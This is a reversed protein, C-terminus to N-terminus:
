KIELLEIDFVLTSKPPITPPRGREGYALEPPIVLLRRGGVKMMPVGEKWGGISRPLPLPLPQGGERTTYFESGDLLWGTCHVLATDTPAPSAGEGAKLVVYMLGSETAELKNGSKDVRTQLLEQFERAREAEHQEQEVKALAEVKAVEAAAEDIAAFVPEYEWGDLLTVSNIVITEKPTVPQPSPYKPHKIVETDKIKDVVDMGEVVEGFACYAAGGRPMDLAKNDVVNIFFQSTASDPANTRAMAITGRKNKLGNKWENKIPPRLGAEKKDMEVTFGGGQIMFTSMVRHFVTDNYYEDKAYQLFNKVTVPAKEANLELVIEGLTTAMKVRPHLPDKKSEGSAGTQAAAEPRPDQSEVKTDQADAPQDQAGGLPVLGLMAIVLFMRFM